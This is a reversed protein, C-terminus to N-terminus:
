HGLVSDGETEEVVKLRPIGGQVITSPQGPLVNRCHGERQKGKERKGKAPQKQPNHFMTPATSDASVEASSRPFFSHIITQKKESEQYFIFYAYNTFVITIESRSAYYQAKPM